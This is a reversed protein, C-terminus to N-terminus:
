LVIGPLCGIHEGLLLIGRDWISCIILKEVIYSSRAAHIMVVM